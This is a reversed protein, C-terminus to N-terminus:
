IGEVSFVNSIAAEERIGIISQYEPSKYWANLTDIDSFEIIVTRNPIWQGELLDTQGGRVLFKGGYRVVTDMVQSSYNKYLDPNQINVNAILYASM